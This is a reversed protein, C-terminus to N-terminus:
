NLRFFVTVSMIVPIPEGNLRTPTFRWQRVADIAAQDLLLVSSLVRVTRVDGSESIVAELIVTGQRKAAVAMPPYIPAVHLIKRPPEVAGGVPVPRRPEPAPPPPAPVFDRGGNNGVSVGVGVGGPSWAPDPPPGAPEPKVGDPAVPPVDSAISTQAPATDSKRAPARSPTAPDPMAVARVPVWETADRVAPLSEAAFLPVIFLAIAAALHVTVSFALTYKRM